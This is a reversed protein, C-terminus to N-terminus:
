KATGSKALEDLLRKADAARKPDESDLYQQYLEMAESRRGGLRRLAQARSFLLTDRGTLEWSRTFEDYAHGYAGAEYLAAGKDFISRGVQTDKDLDGTSAPTELETIAKQADADRTGHGSKLYAKYRALAEERRGGLRRLAQASSFLAGPRQTLQYARDFEDFAHAFDGKEYAKAGADFMTKGAAEDAEVDGTSEPTKLQEIARNADAVRRPDETALYQEYLDIAEERHGGMRRLAQARSFILGARGSLESARTFLDYAKGWEGRDYAAAGADFAARAETTSAADEPVSESQGGQQQVLEAVAANGAERQLDLVRQQLPDLGTAPSSGGRRRVASPAAARMQALAGAGM